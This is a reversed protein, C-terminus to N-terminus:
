RRTGPRQAQWRLHDLYGQLIVAAAVADIEDKRRGRRKGAAILSREAVATSLREDWYIVPLGVAVGYADGRVRTERAQPGERGSLGIPLGVVLAAVGYRVALARLADTAGPGEAVTAVPSAITGMEDSVAVGIRREGLDLGLLREGRAM